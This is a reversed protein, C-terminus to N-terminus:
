HINFISFHSSTFRQKMELFLTRIVKIDKWITEDDISTTLQIIHTTTLNFTVTNNEVSLFSLSM